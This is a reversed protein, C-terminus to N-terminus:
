YTSNWWPERFTYDSSYAMDKDGFAEVHGDHFLINAKRKHRFEPTQSRDFQNLMDPVQSGTGNVPNDGALYMQSALRTRTLVYYRNGNSDSRVWPSPWVSPFYMRRNLGYSSRAVGATQTRFQSPCYLVDGNAVYNIPAKWNNSPGNKDFIFNTWTPYITTPATPMTLVASYPPIMGRNELSYLQFSTFVQRMNSRCKVGQAQQRASSLAPMLFAILVAIIGIVVLLEILTFGRRCCRSTSFRFMTGMREAMGVRWATVPSFHSERHTFDVACPQGFDRM